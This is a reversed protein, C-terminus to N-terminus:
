PCSELQSKRVPPLGFEPVSVEGATAPIVFLVRTSNSMHRSTSFKASEAPRSMVRTSAESSSKVLLM